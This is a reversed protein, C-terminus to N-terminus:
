SHLTGSLTALLHRSFSEFNSSTSFSWTEFEKELKMCKEFSLLM